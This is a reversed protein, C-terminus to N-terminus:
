FPIDDDSFSPQAQHVPTDDASEQAMEKEEIRDMAYTFMSRDKNQSGEQKSWWAFYETPVEAWRKGKYKGFRMLTEGLEGIPDAAEFRVAKRVGGNEMTSPPPAVTDSAAAGDDDESAIGLIAQYAYRRAFTIASGLSQPDDAPRSEGSEKDRQQKPRIPYLGEIWEGSGHALTTRLYLRGELICTTQVVCLEYKALLPKASALVASLDAYKSHYYPNVFTKKPAELESQFLSLAKALQGLQDSRHEM